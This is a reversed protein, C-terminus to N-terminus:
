LSQVNRGLGNINIAGYAIRTESQDIEFFDEGRCGRPWIFQIKTPIM